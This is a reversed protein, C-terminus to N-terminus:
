HRLAVQLLLRARQWDRRVTRETVGLAGAIEAEDLGGFYRMEVVQKLRPDAAELETLAEHVREVDGDVDALSDVLDTHLSTHPLDGGRRQARRQRALDVIVSRMIASAYALFQARCSAEIRGGQRLRVYAEHVLSTPDLLTIPTNGALRARAMRHLEPYIHAVLEDVAVKDDSHIRRLLGTIDSM